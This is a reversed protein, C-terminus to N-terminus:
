QFIERKCKSDVMKNIIILNSPFCKDVYHHTSVRSFYGLFIAFLILFPFFLFLGLNGIKNTRALSATHPKITIHDVITRLTGLQVEVECVYVEVLTTLFNPLAKVSVQSKRSSTYVIATVWRADEPEALIPRDRMGSPHRGLRSAPVLAIFIIM